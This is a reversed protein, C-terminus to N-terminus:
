IGPSPLLVRKLLLKVEPESLLTEFGASGCMLIESLNTQNRELTRRRGTRRAQSPKSVLNVLTQARNGRATRLGRKAQIEHQIQQCLLEDPAFIPEKYQRSHPAQSM